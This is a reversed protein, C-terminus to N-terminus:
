GAASGPESEQVAQPPAPPETDGGQLSQVVAGTDSPQDTLLARLHAREDADLDGISKAFVGPPIATHLERLVRVLLKRGEEDSWGPEESTPTRSPPSLGSESLARDVERRLVPGPLPIAKQTWDALPALRASLVMLVEPDHHKAWRSVALGSAAHLLVWRLSTPPRALVLGPVGTELAEVAVMGDPGMIPTTRPM